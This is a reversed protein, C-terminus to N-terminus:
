ADDHDVVAVVGHRVGATPRDDRRFGLGRREPSVGADDRAQLVATEDGVPLKRLGVRRLGVVAPLLLALVETAPIRGSSRSSIKEYWAGSAPCGSFYSAIRLEAFLKAAATRAFVGGDGSWVTAMRFIRSATM